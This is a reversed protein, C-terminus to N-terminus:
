FGAPAPRTLDCVQALPVSAAESGTATEGPLPNIRCWALRGGATDIRAWFPDGFAGVTRGGSKIDRSVALCSYARLRGSQPTGSPPYESCSVRLVPGTLTRARARARADSLIERELAAVLERQGRVPVTATHVRQQEAQVRSQLARTVAQQRELQAVNFRRAHEIGPTLLAVLGGAVGLLAVAILGAVVKRRPTGLLKTRRAVYPAGCV